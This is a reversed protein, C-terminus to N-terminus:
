LPAAQTTENPIQLRPAPNKEQLNVMFAEMEQGVGELQEADLLKKVKPFLDTREEEVHHEVEERAVTLKAQFNEDDPQLELLDALVRKIALHEEVSELLIDKTLKARVAPYFVKEEITAHVALADAIQNFLKQKERGSAKEAKKFLASVENHQQELLKIANM